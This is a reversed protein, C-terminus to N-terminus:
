KLILDAIDEGEKVDPNNQLYDSVTIDYSSKFRDLRKHWEDFAKGKDPYFTLKKDKLLRLRYNNINMLGGTALFVKKPNKIACVIATKESEVIHYEQIYDKILHEGFFCQTLCYDPCFEPQPDNKDLKYGLEHHLWSIHNFPQKVRHGTNDYLMIKGTRAEMENDLQWFVTAGDWKNSTGVLYRQVIKMVTERDFKMSLYKVLMNNSYNNLSRLVHASNITSITDENEIFENKVSTMDVFLSKDEVDKGYPTKHYGCKERRNCMGFGDGLPIGTTVDIYPSFQKKKRCSPCDERSGMGTYPMLKYRAVKKDQEKKKKQIIEAM